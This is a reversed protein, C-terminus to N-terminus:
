INVNDPDVSLRIPKHLAYSALKNVEEGFTASFLLNQCNQNLYGIIEKIEAEFGFQLLKDAEDFILM